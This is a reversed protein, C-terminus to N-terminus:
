CAATGGWFLVKKWTKDFVNYRITFSSFPKLDKDEVDLHFTQKANEKTIRDEYKPKDTRGGSKTVYKKTENDYLFLCKESKGQPNTVSKELIVVSMSKSGELKSFGEKDAKLGRGFKFQLEGPMDDEVVVGNAYKPQLKKKNKDEIKNGEWDSYEGNNNRLYYGDQEKRIFLGLKDMQSYEYTSKLSYGEVCVRLVRGDVRLRKLDKKDDTSSKEWSGDTKTLKLLYRGTLKERLYMDKDVVIEKGIQNIAEAEPMTFGKQGAPFNQADDPSQLLDGVAGSLIDGQENADPFTIAVKGNTNNDNDKKVNALKVTGNDIGVLLQNETFHIQKAIALAKMNYETVGTGKDYSSQKKWSDVPAWAADEWAYTSRANSVMAGLSALALAIKKVSKKSM